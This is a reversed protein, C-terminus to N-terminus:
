TKQFCEVSRQLRPENVDGTRIVLYDKVLQEAAMFIAVSGAEQWFIRDFQRNMESLKGYHEQVTVAQAM